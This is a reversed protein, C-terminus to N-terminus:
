KTQMKIFKIICLVSQASSIELQVDHAGTPCASAILYILLDIKSSPLEIGNKTELATKGFSM